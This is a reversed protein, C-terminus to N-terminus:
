LATGLLRELDTVSLVAEVEADLLMLRTNLIRQQAALVAPFGVAGTEYSARASELAAEVQPLLSDRILRIQGRRAELAAHTEGLVGVLRTEAAERRAEAAARVSEAERERARRSAQQLPINLEFMVDWSDRGGRPRNNALSIGFDPYRDRHTLARGREAALLEARARELVPAHQKAREILSALVAPPPLVPLAVPETLPDNPARALLVNLNAQAAVRLRVLDVAEIRLATLEGQVQLVEQQTVLGLGYRSLVQTELGENLAVTEDLIRQRMAIRYLDIYARRIAAEIELRTQAVDAVAGDALAEAVEGRLARKGPYPLMQSVRLTTAGVEGPLLSASRGRNMTNTVDMLEIEFRPDPLATASVARERAAIVDFRSAALLPNHERAHAILADLDAGLVEGSLPSGSVAAPSWSVTLMAACLLVARIPSLLPLMPNM